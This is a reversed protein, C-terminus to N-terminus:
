STALLTQWARGRTLNGIGAGVATPSFATSLDVAGATTAAGTRAFDSAAAALPARGGADTGALVQAAGPAAAGHQLLVYAVTTYRRLNFNFAFRSLLKDCKPKFRVAGPAKLTPKIPDVHM